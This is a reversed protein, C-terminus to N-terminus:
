LMETASSHIQSVIVTKKRSNFADSCTKMSPPAICVAV